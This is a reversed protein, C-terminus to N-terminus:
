SYLQLFFDNQQQQANVFESVMTGRVRVLNIVALLVHDDCHHWLWCTRWDSSWLASGHARMRPMKFPRHFVALELFIQGSRIKAQRVDTTGSAASFRRTFAHRTSCVNKTPAHSWAMYIITTSHSPLTCTLEHKLGYQSTNTHKATASLAPMIHDFNLHARNGGGAPACMKSSTTDNWLGKLTGSESHVRNSIRHYSHWYFACTRSRPLSSNQGM